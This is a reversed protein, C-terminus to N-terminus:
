RGRRAARAIEAPDNPDPPSGEPPAAQRAIEELGERWVVDPSVGRAAAEREVGLRVEENADALREPAPTDRLVRAVIEDVRRDYPM